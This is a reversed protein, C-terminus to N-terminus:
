KILIYNKYLNQKIIKGNRDYKIELGEKKGNLYNCKLILNDLKDYYTWEGSYNNNKNYERELSKIRLYKFVDNKGLFKDILDRSFLNSFLCLLFLLILNKTNNM